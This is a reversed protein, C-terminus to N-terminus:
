AIVTELRLVRLILSPQDLTGVIKRIPHPLVIGLTPTMLVSDTLARKTEQSLNVVEITHRDKLHVRCLSTINAPARISNPSNDSIYLRFRFISLRNMAETKSVTDGRRSGAFKPM